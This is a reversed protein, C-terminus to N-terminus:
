LRVGERPGGHGGFRLLWVTLPILSKRLFSMEIFRLGDSVASAADVVASSGFVSAGFRFTDSGLRAGFSRFVEAALEPPRCLCSTPSLM